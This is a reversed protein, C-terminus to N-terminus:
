AADAHVGKCNGCLLVSKKMILLWGLLGGVFSSVIIFLSAGIGLAAGVGTGVDGASKMTHLHLVDQAQEPTLGQGELAERTPTKLASVEEVQAATLGLQALNATYEQAHNDVHDGAVKGSGCFLIMGFFMGLLSPILFIYGIAVVPGSMRRVKTKRVSGVQNCVKCVIASYTNNNSM